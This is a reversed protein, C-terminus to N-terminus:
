EKVIMVSHKPGNDQSHKFSGQIGMDTVSKLLKKKFINLFIIKDMTGHIFVLEGLRTKLENDPRRWIMQRGDSGFINLKTEDAFSVDNQYNEPKLFTKARICKRVTELSVKEGTQNALAVKLKLANIRLNEKLTKMIYRKERVNILKPRDTQKISLIREEANKWRIIDAVTSKSLNLKEDIRRYPLKKEFHFIVFQRLNFTINVKNKVRGMKAWPVSRSFIDSYKQSGLFSRNTLINRNKRYKSVTNYNYKQITLLCFNREMDICDGQRPQVTRRSHAM